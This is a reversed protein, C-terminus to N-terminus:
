GNVLSILSDRRGRSPFTNLGGLAEFRFRSENIERQVNRVGTKSAIENVGTAFSRCHVSRSLIYRIQRLEPLIDAHDLVELLLEARGILARRFFTDRREPLDEGVPHVDVLTVTIERIEEEM